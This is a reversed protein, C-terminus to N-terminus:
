PSQGPRDSQAPSNEQTIPHAEAMAADIKAVRKEHEIRVSRTAGMTQGCLSPFLVLGAGGVLLLAIVTGTCGCGPSPKEAIPQPPGSPELVATPEGASPEGREHGQAHISDNENGSPKPEDPM